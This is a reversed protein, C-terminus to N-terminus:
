LNLNCLVSKECKKVSRWVEECGRVPSQEQGVIPGLIDTDWESGGRMGYQM